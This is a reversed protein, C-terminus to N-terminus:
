RTEKCPPIPKTIPALTLALTGGLCPPLRESHHPLEGSEHPRDKEAPLWPMLAPQSLFTTTTTTTTQSVLTPPTVTYRAVMSDVRVNIVSIMM